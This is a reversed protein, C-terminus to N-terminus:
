SATRKWCADYGSGSAALRRLDAPNAAKQRRAGGGVTRPHMALAELSADVYGTMRSLPHLLAVEVIRAEEIQDVKDFRAVFVRGPQPDLDVVRNYYRHHHM